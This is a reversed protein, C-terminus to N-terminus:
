LTVLNPLLKCGFSGSHTKFELIDEWLLSGPLKCLKLCDRSFNKSWLGPLVSCQDTHFGDCLVPVIEVGRVKLATALIFDVIRNFDVHLYSTPYLVKCGSKDNLRRNIIKAQIAVRRLLLDADLSLLTHGFEQISGPNM